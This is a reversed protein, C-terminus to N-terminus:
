QLAPPPQRIRESKQLVLVAPPSGSMTKGPVFSNDNPQPQMASFKLQSESFCPSSLLNLLLIAHNIQNMYGVKVKVQDLRLTDHQMTYPLNPRNENFRTQSFQALRDTHYTYLRKVSGLKRILTLHDSRAFVGAVALM